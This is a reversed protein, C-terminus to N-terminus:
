QIYSLDLSYFIKLSVIKKIVLSKRLDRKFEGKRMVQLNHEPSTAFAQVFWCRDIVLFM